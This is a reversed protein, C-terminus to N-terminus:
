SRRRTPTAASSADAHDVRRRRAPRRHRARAARRRRRRARGNGMRCTGVPHYITDAHGRIFREIEDDSQATASTPSSARATAPSRRSSRPHPADGQLRAGAARRRRARRPLGPRDAARRVSRREGARGPRPEEAAAPLRPVLLRPRLDDEPWPRAAQRRRLAAAPRAAARGAPQAPVRRGRRLQHDAPRASPPAMRVGGEADRGRGVAVARVPGQPAARRARRRRRHSRAPARGVGPLDVRTAIGHRQLHEGPGIGSLMLVQPSQLAGACLSSRAGPAFRSCSAASARKSGSRRGARSCCRADHARRHRRRPQASRPEADLYAKAASCREGNKQMVQFLGAGEQDAGNFDRNAALGAQVAAEVFVPASAIRARAPGDRQAPRRRRSLRRRRARQARRAQLVAARRGLGLRHQRRRGLRRLGRPQGRVYIM